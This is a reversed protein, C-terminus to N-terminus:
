IIEFGRLFTCDEKTLLPIPQTWTMSKQVLVTYWGM